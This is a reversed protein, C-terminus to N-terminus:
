RADGATPASRRIRWRSLAIGAGFALVLVAVRVPPSPDWAVPDGVYGATQALLLGVVLTLAILLRHKHVM